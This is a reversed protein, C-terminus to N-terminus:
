SKSSRARYFRDIMMGWLYFEAGVIILHFRGFEALSEM